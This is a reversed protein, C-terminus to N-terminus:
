LLGVNVERCFCWTLKKRGDISLSPHPLVFMKFFNCKTLFYTGHQILHYIANTLLLNKIAAFLYFLACVLTISLILVLAAFMLRNRSMRIAKLFCCM